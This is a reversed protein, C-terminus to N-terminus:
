PRKEKRRRAYIDAGEQGLSGLLGIPPAEDATRGPAGSRARAPFKGATRFVGTPPGLAGMLNATAANDPHRAEYVDMAESLADARANMEDIGGERLGGLGAKLLAYAGSLQDEGGSGRKAMWSNARQRAEPYGPTNRNRQLM